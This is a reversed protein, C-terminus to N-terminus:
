APAGTRLAHGAREEEGVLPLVARIEFGGDPLPTAQATGGWAKARERMGVLGHGGSPLSAVDGPPAASTVRLGLDDEGYRVAVETHAGGAHKVANTLAEQLIRYATLDLGAAVGRRDGHVHLEVPLGADRARRVLAELGDLGPQPARTAGEEPHFLGLLRRMEAVTERGIRQIQAAAEEARAPDRDLIRRAGGAQVVMVSVSHAVIDHMERAIRRREAAVAEETELEQAEQERITAEHLEATLRTRTRLARGAMFSGLIFAGHFLFDGLIVDESAVNVVTLGVGALVLWWATRDTWAGIAYPLFVLGFFGAAIEDPGLLFLAQPCLVAFFALYAGFPWRRRAAVCLGPLTAVVLNLWLPGRIDEIDLTMGISLAVLVAALIWDVVQLNRRM